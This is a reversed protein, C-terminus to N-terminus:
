RFAHIIRRAVDNAHKEVGALIRGFERSPRWIGQQKTVVLQHVYWDLALPNRTGASLAHSAAVSFQELDGNQLSASVWFFAPMSREPDCLVARRCADLLAEARGARSSAWAIAEWSYSGTTGAPEQDLADYLLRAAEGNAGEACMMEVGLERVCMPSPRVRLAAAFLEAASTRTAQGALLDVLWGPDEGDIKGELRSAVHRTDRQLAAREPL